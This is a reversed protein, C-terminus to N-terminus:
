ILEYLIKYQEVAWHIPQRIFADTVKVSLGKAHAVELAEPFTIEHMITSRISYNKVVTVDLQPKKNLRRKQIYVQSILFMVKEKDDCHLYIANLEGGDNIDAGCAILLPVVERWDERFM